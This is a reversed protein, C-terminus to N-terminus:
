YEGDALADAKTQHVTGFPHEPPAYISYLKLPEDGTNTINHWTGAPVMIADDEEVYRNFDLNDRSKGMQVYGNGQELRLFQDTDPHIELGIDEGVDISMLTVQLHDGTWIATRFTNNRETAQEIAVVFPDGGQDSIRTATDQPSQKSTLQASEAGYYARLFVDRVYPDQTLMYGKQYSQYSEQELLQLQQVGEQGDAVRIDEEYDPEGGTLNRYIMASNDLLVLKRQIIQLYNMREEESSAEDALKQCIAIMKGERKIDQHISNCLYQLPDHSNRVSDPMTTNIQKDFQTMYFM